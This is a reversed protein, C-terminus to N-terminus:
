FKPEIQHQKRSKNGGIGWFYAFNPGSGFFANTKEPYLRFCYIVTLQFKTVRQRLGMFPFKSRIQASFLKTKSIKPLM